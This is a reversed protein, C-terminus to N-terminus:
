YSVRDIRIFIESFQFKSSSTMGRVLLESSSKTELAFYHEFSNNVNLNLVRLM